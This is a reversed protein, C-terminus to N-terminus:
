PLVITRGDVYLTRGRQPGNLVRVRVLQRAQTAGAQPRLFDESWREVIVQTGRPLQLPPSGDPKQWADIRGQPDIPQLRVMRQSDIADIVEAEVQKLAGDRQMQALAADFRKILSSNDPNRRSAILHLPSAIHLPATVIAESKLALEGSLIQDGVRTAEIVLLPQDSSLLLEFAALNSEAPPMKAFRREVEPPYRYGSIPVVFAPLNTTHKIGAAGPNRAKNFYVSMDINLIPASYYFQSTREENFGYPFAGRVGRDTEGELAAQEARPWPMFRFEPRYSMQKFVASVVASAVGSSALREGSYPAWEGTTLLIPKLPEADGGGRLSIATVIILILAIAVLLSVIQPHISPRPAVRWKNAADNNV